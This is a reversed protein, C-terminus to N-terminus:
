TRVISSAFGGSNHAVGQYAKENKQNFGYEYLLYALGLYSVIALLKMTMILKTDRLKFITLNIFAWALLVFIVRVIGNEVIDPFKHLSLYALFMVPGLALTGRFMSHKRKAMLSKWRESRVMGDEKNQMDVLAPPSRKRENGPM